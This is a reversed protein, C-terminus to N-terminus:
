QEEWWKQWADPEAPLDQGTIDKLAQLANERVKGDPDQLAAILAPVAAIAKDGLVTLEWAAAKRVETHPDSLARALAAITEASDPAILPAAQLAAIRVAPSVDATITELLRPLAAMAQPGIEGLTGTALYRVLIFEDGLAQELSPVAQASAPGFYGLVRAANARVQYDRDQLAGILAPVVQGPEEKSLSLAAAANQRVTGQEDGLALILAPVAAAAEVGCEGLAWAAAARVESQPDALLAQLGPLVPGMEWERVWSPRGLLMAATARTEWEPSDLTGSLYASDERQEPDITGPKLQNIASLVSSQDSAGGFRLAAILAPLSDTAGLNGLITAAKARDSWNESELSRELLALQQTQSIQSSLIIGTAHGIISELRDLVDRSHTGLIVTLNLDGLAQTVLEREDQTGEGGVGNTEEYIYVQGDIEVVQQLQVKVEQTTPAFPLPSFVSRLNEGRYYSYILYLVAEGGAVGPKSEPYLVSQIYYLHETAPVLVIQMEELPPLDLDEPAQPLQGRRDLLPVISRQFELTAQERSPLPLPTPTATPLPTRSPVAPSPTLQVISPSLTLPAPAPGGATEAPQAPEGGGCATMALITTVALLSFFVARHM